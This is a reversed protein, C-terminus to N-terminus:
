RTRSVNGNFADIAIQAMGGSGDAARLIYKRDAFDVVEAGDFGARRALTRADELSMPMSLSFVASPVSRRADAGATGAADTPASTALAWIAWLALSNTMARLM